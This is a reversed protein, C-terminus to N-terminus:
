KNFVGMLENCMELTLDNSNQLENMKLEVTTRMEM